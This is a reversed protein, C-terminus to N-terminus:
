KAKNILESFEKGSKFRVTKVANIKMIGGTVPNRGNREMRTYVSFSGFGSLTVKGGKRLTGMVAGTFSDIIQNAQKKTIQHETSIQEILDKKNM